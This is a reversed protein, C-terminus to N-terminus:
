PESRRQLAAHEQLETLLDVGRAKTTGFLHTTQTNQALRKGMTWVAAVGTEIALVTRRLWELLFWVVLAIVLGAALSLWWALVVGNSLALPM